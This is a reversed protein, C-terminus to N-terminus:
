KEHYRFGPRQNLFSLSDQHRLSYLDFSIQCCQNPFKLCSIRSCFSFQVFNDVRFQSRNRPLSQGPLIICRLARFRDHM